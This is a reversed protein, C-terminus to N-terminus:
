KFLDAYITRSIASGDCVLWGEPAETNCYFSIFGVDKNFSKQIGDEMKNLNNASLAPAGSAISGSSNKNLWDTKIYGM